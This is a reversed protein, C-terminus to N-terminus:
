RGAEVAGPGSGGARARPDATCVCAPGSHKGWAAVVGVFEQGPEGPEIEDAAQGLGLDRGLEPDGAEPDVAPQRRRPGPAEGPDLEVRGEGGGEVKLCLEDGAEAEAVRQDADGGPM